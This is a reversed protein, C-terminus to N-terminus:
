GGVNGKKQLGRREDKGNTNEKRGRGETEDDVQNRGGKPM